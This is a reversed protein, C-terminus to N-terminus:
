THALPTLIKKNLCLGAFLIRMLSQLESTHEEARDGSAVAVLSEGPQLAIDTVLGPAAYGTFITGESWSYVHAGSVFGSAAPEATASRTASQITKLQASASRDQALAPYAVLIGVIAPLLDLKM